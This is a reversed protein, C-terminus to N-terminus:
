GVAEDSCAEGNAYVADQASVCPVATATIGDIENIDVSDIM